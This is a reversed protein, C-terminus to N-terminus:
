AANKNNQRITYYYHNIIISAFITNKESMVAVLVASKIICHSVATENM